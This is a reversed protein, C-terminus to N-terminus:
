IRIKIRETRARSCCVAIKNRKEAESMVTDRHDVEGELLDVVCTGCVGAKCLSPVFLGHRHLVELITEGDRVTLIQGTGAIEVEFWGRVDTIADARNGFSEFRVADDPWTSCAEKVAHMLGEPGCCYLCVGQGREAAAMAVVNLGNSVNGGDIHLQVRDVHPPQMLLDLFAAKDAERVCYHLFWDQGRRSVVRVMSLIPTIGIGGAVFVHRTADDALPFNNRPGSIRVLDGLQVSEHLEASGGRGGAARLVAIGYSQREIPDTFLSYQRVLGSPLHIDIHAGAEFAPLVQDDPAALIYSRIDATEDRVAKVQLRMTPALTCSLTGGAADGRSEGMTDSNM